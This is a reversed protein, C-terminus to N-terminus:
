ILDSHRKNWFNLLSEFYNLFFIIQRRLRSWGKSNSSSGGSVESSSVVGADGNDESGAAIEEKLDQIRVFTKVMKSKDHPGVSADPVTVAQDIKRLDIKYNNNQGSWLKNFFKAVVTIASRSNAM